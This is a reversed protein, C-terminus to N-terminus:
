NLGELLKRAEEAGKTGPHQDVIAQLAKKAEDKKGADILGKAATLETKAEREANAAALAKAREPDSRVADAKAKAEEGCPLGAYKKAVADLLRLYKADDKGDGASAVAKDLEARGEKERALDKLVKKGEPSGRFADAAKKAAAASETGPYDEGVRDLAVLGALPHDKLDAQAKALAPAAEKDVRGLLERAADLLAIKKPTATFPALAKAAQSMRKAEVDARAGALAKQLKGYEEDSLGPGGAKALAAKLGEIMKPPLVEGFGADKSGNVIQALVKGEGDVVFHNPTCLNASKNVAIDGYSRYVDDQAAKHDACQIAPVLACVKAPKGDITGDKTGHDAENDAFLVLFGKMAKQVEKNKFTEMDAKCSSDSDMTSWVLIPYGREKSIEFAKKLSRVFRPGEEEAPLARASPAALPAVLALALALAVVRIGTM